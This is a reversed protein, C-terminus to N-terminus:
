RHLREMAKGWFNDISTIVTFPTNYQLHLILAQRALLMSPHSKWIIEMEKFFVIHFFVVGM